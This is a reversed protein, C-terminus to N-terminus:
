SLTLKVTTVEGGVIKISRSDHVAKNDINAKIELKLLGAELKIISAQKGTYTKEKIDNFYVTWHTTDGNTVEINIAGDQTLKQKKVTAKLNADVDNLVAQFESVWKSTEQSVIDRLEALFLEALGMMRLVDSKELPNNLQLKEREWDLKFAEHESIIKQEAQIFRIWASTFGGFKEIGILFGAVAIAVASWAPDLNFTKFKEMSVLLPVIGAIATAVIALYRLWRGMRGKWIRKKDYWQHAEEAQTNIYTFLSLLFDNYEDPNSSLVPFDNLTSDKKDTMSKSTM